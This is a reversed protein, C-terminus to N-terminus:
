IDDDNDGRIKELNEKILQRIYEKTLKKIEENITNIQYLKVSKEDIYFNMINLATLNEEMDTNKVLITGNKRVFWYYLSEKGYQITKKDIEFDEKYAQMQKTRREMKEFLSEFM